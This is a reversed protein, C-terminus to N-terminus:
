RGEAMEKWLDYDISIPFSIMQEKFSLEKPEMHPVLFTEEEIPEIEMTAFGYTVLFSTLYARVVTEEYSPAYIFDWYHIRGEGAAKEKLELWFKQLLGTFSEENIIRAKILEEISTLDLVGTPEPLKMLREELSQLQNWYDIAELVRKNSLRDMEIVPHWTRRFIDLLKEPELMKVKLEILLPDVFLTTSRHKIWDGQLSVISSIRNLTKADLAFDELASWHPLYKRLTELAEKVEVEFPNGGKREIAVCLSIIRLLRERDKSSKV